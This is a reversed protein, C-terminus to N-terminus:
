RVHRWSNGLRIQLIASRSVNFQEAIQAQSPAGLGLLFKITKVKEENLKADSRESGRRIVKQGKKIMDRMNDLPTGLFLHSPKVCGYNDCKHCVFLEQNFAGYQLYYSIRSAKYHKGNLKIRGRGIEDKTGKWLWCSPTWEILSNFYSRQKKNLKM